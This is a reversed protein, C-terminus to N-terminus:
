LGKKTQKGQGVEEKEVRWIDEEDVGPGDEELVLIGDRTKQWERVHSGESRHLKWYNM